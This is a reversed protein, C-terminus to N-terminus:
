SIIKKMNKVQPLRKKSLVKCTNYSAKQSLWFWSFIIKKSLRDKRSLTNPFRDLILFLNTQGWIVDWIAPISIRRMSAIYDCKYRFPGIQSGGWLISHIESASTKKSWFHERSNGFDMQVSKTDYFILKSCLFM